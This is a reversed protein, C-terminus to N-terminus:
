VSLCRNHWTEHYLCMNFVFLVYFMDHIYYMTHKSNYIKMKPLTNQITKNNKDCVISFHKIPIAKQGYSEMFLYAQLLKTSKNEIQIQKQIKAHYGKTRKMNYLNKTEM